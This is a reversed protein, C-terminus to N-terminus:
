FLALLLNCTKILFILIPIFFRLTARQNKLFARFTKLLVHRFYANKESSLNTLSTQSKVKRKRM